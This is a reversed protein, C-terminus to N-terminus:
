LGADVSVKGKAVATLAIGGEMVTIDNVGASAMNGSIKVDDELTINMAKNAAEVGKKMDNSYSYKVSDSIFERIIPLNAIKIISDVITNDTDSRLFVDKVYILKKENDIEPVGAFEVTGTTDFWDFIDIFKLFKSRNDYIVAVSIALKGDDLQKIGIDNFTVQGGLVDSKVDFTYGGPFKSKASKEIEGFEVFAPISIQFLGDSIEIKKLPALPVPNVDPKKGVVVSTAGSIEVQAKLINNEVHVGSFGVSEPKFLLYTTPAKAIEIPQQIRSWADEVKARIELDSLLQPVQSAFKNMEDRLSPEVKGAITMKIFGFLELTPKQDWRMDPKVAASVSWSEDIDPTIDAFITAKADATESIGAAKASISSAIPVSLHLTQGDGSIGIDGNRNVWGSVDCRVDPSVYTWGECSYIKIGHFCPYKYKAKKAPICVLNNENITVLRQPVESNIRTQVAALNIRIPISVHSTTDTSSAKGIVCMSLITTLGVIKSLLRYM